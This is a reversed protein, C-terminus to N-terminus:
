TSTRGPDQAMRPVEPVVLLHTMLTRMTGLAAERPLTRASTAEETRCPITGHDRGRTSPSTGPVLVADKPQKAQDHSSAISSSPTCSLPRHQNPTKEPRSVTTPGVANAPRAGARDPGCGPGPSSLSRARGCGHWTRLPFFGRRDVVGLPSRFQHRGQFQGRGRATARCRARCSRGRRQHGPVSVDAGLVRRAGGGALDLPVPGRHGGRLDTKVQDYVTECTWRQRYLVPFDEIPDRVTDLLSTIVTMTEGVTEEGTFTDTSTVSYEIVRVPVSRRGPKNLHAIWSGDALVEKPKLGFQAGARMLVEAGTSRIHEFLDYGCFGRDLVAVQGAGLQDIMKLLLAKESEGYAGVA